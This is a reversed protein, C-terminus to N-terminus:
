YVLKYGQGSFNQIHEKGLAKRLNKVVTRLALSSMIEWHESWVANEIATYSVVKNRHQLLLELLLKEKKKLIYSPKNPYEICSLAENYCTGNAFCLKEDEAADIEMYPLTNELAKYLKERTIPKVIYAQIHLNCCDLLYEKDTHASLVIIPKYPAMSRLQTILEIGDVSPMELDTIIIDVTKNRFLELAEAGNCALHTTKFLTSLTYRMSERVVSEDDVFLVTQSSLKIQNEQM